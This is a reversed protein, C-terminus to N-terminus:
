GGELVRVGNARPSIGLPRHRPSARRGSGAARRASGAFPGRGPRCMGCGVASRTGRARPDREGRCSRRHGPWPLVALQRVNNPSSKGLAAVLSAPLRGAARVGCGHQGDAAMPLHDHARGRHDTSHGRRYRPVTISEFAQGRQRLNALCGASQTNVAARRYVVDRLGGPDSGRRDRPREGSGAPDVNTGRLSDEGRRPRDPVSRTDEVSRGDPAGAAEGHDGGVDAVREVRLDDATGVLRGALGAVRDHQGVGALVGVELPVPGLAFQTGYLTDQQGARPHRVVRDPHERLQSWQDQEVTADRLDGGDDGVVRATHTPGDLVEGLEAVLRDDVHGARLGAPGVPHTPDGQHPRAVLQVQPETADSRAVGRRNM